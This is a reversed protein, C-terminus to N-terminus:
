LSITVKGSSALVYPLHDLGYEKDLRDHVCTLQSRVAYMAAQDAFCFRSSIQDDTQIDPGPFLDDETACILFHVHAWLKKM